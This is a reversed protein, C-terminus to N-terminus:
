RSGLPRPLLLIQAAVFQEGQPVRLQRSFLTLFDATEPILGFLPWCFLLLHGNSIGHL